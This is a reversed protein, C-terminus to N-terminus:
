FPMDEEVEQTKKVNRSKNADSPPEWTNLELYYKGGQSLKIDLNVWGNKSKEKLFVIAEDVKVSLGGIVFEPSNENKKFIFGDAFIKEEAM